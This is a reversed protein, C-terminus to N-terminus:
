EGQTVSELLLEIERFSISEEAADNYVFENSTYERAAALLCRLTLALDPLEEATEDVDAMVNVADFSVRNCLGGLRNLEDDWEKSSGSTIDRMHPVYLNYLLIAWDNDSCMEERILEVRDKSERM